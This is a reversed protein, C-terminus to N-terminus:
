IKKFSFAITGTSKISKSFNLTIGFLNNFTTIANILNDIYKPNSPSIKIKYTVISNEILVNAHEDVSSIVGEFMNFYNIDNDRGVKPFNKKVIKM